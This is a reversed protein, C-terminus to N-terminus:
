VQYMYVIFHYIVHIISLALGLLVLFLSAFDILIWKNIYERTLRGDELMDM